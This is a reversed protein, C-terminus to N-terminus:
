VFKFKVCIYIIISVKYKVLLVFVKQTMGLKDIPFESIISEVLTDSCIKKINILANKHNLKSVLIDEQKFCMRLYNFFQRMLRYKAVDYIGLNKLKKMEVFYLKKILEFRHEKYNTTLSNNNIRYNYNCTEILSVGTSYKFYDLNFIIDESILERESPFKLDNKRIIDMSYLVNWAATSVCDSKEPASGIFRPIFKKVVQEYKFLTKKYPHSSIFENKMNVRNHGGMCTDVGCEILANYLDFLMNEEVYDDSDVFVIFEGHAKEIGANRAYGLGENKKHLVSINSFRESYEDCIKGSSDLSGDDVLIVEFDTYTQHLISEICQRLYREVNYVPVIVSIM